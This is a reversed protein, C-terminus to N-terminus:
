QTESVAAQLEEIKAELRGIQEQQSKIAEILVPIIETYAVAKEGAPGEKVVEPLIKEVEQAIVGYHRGEPFGRDRYEDAKWNFRVGRLQVVKALADAIGVVGEKFRVDSGQWSGTTYANGQVHLKYAGPNDTGIGVNGTSNKFTVKDSGQWFRLDGNDGHKYLAWVEAGADGTKKFNIEPSITRAEILIRPNDGVIHLNRQPALTGLGIRGNSFDGYILVDSTDPGNAIYLKNSGHENKGAERGIFVSNSSWSQSGAMYGVYTNSGGLSNLYGARRGIYTNYSLGSATKGAEDGICTNENGSGNGGGAWQGVFTNYDGDYNSHGANSGVFTNYEGSENVSGATYGVFTNDRGGTNAWGASQGLFTNSSGTDNNYGADDGLFANNSGYDNDYGAGKGVFVNHQGTKNNHGASSGIFTNMVGSTNRYGAGEGVFTNSSGGANFYGAQKGV